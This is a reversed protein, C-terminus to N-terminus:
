TKIKYIFTVVTCYLKADFIFDKKDALYNKKKFEKENEIFYKCKCGRISPSILFWSLLYKLTIIM